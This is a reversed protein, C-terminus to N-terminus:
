PKITVGSFAGRNALEKGSRSEYVTVQPLGRYEAERYWSMIKVLNQKADLEFGEWRPGDVYFYGRELDMRKIFGQAVFGPIAKQAAASRRALEAAANSGQPTAAHATQAVAATPAPTPRSSTSRSLSGILVLGIFVVVAWTVFSTKKKPAAALVTSAGAKLDKGCHKCVIAAAQIEEACFPCTKV